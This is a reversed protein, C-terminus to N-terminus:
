RMVDCHCPAHHHWAALACAARLYIGDRRDGAVRHPRGGGHHRDRHPAHARRPHAPVKTKDNDPVTIEGLYYDCPLHSTLLEASLGKVMNALQAAGHCSDLPSVWGMKEVYGFHSTLAGKDISIWELGPHRQKMDSDLGKVKTVTNLAEVIKKGIQWPWPSTYFCVSVVSKDQGRTLLMAVSGANRKRGVYKTQFKAIANGTTLIGQALDKCTLLSVSADTAGMNITGM